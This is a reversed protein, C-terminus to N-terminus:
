QNHCEQCTSDLTSADAYILTRDNQSGHAKHCSLCTVRDDTSPIANDSPSDVPVRPLTTTSWRTYDAAVAGWITRDVPHDSTPDPTGHCKGCWESVGSKYVVNAPVYVDSPNTGNALITQFTVVDVPTSSSTPDPRLNRYSTNGHPDHCTVCTLVMPQTGGYPIEPLPNDLHHARTTPIGGGNPFAGAATEAVYSVPEVVDPAAPNAGDHCSLCLDLASGRRLLSKASSPDNDTRMPQGNESNHQTHCDSCVLNAGYHWDGAGLPRVGVILPVLVGLVTIVAQRLRTCTRRGDASHRRQAGTPNTPM